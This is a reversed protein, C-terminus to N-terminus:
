ERILVFLGKKAHGGHGMGGKDTYHSQQTGAKPRGPYMRRHQRM